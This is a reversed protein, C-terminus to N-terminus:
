DYRKTHFNFSKKKSSKTLENMVKGHLAQGRILEVKIEEGASHHANHHANSSPHHQPHVYEYRNTTYTEDEYRVEAAAASFRLGNVHENANPPPQSQIYVTSQNAITLDGANPSGNTSRIRNGQHEYAAQNYLQDGVPM